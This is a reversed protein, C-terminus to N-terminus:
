MYLFFHYTRWMGELSRSRAILSITGRVGFKQRAAPIKKLFRQQFFSGQIKMTTSFKM